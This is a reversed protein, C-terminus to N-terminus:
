GRMADPICEIVDTALLGYGYKLFALDGATGAILAGASAAALAGAKAFIAGTVGALVDGTGGVTMGPNGTRNIRVARGDSIIDINGKLLTVVHNRASFDMVLECREDLDASVIGGLMRFEGAHPTIIPLAGEHVPMPMRLAHLADADIVFRADPNSRVIGSVAEATESERGLGMGIVTVDHKRILTNVTDIDDSTLYSGSLSHVILDPSFGAITGAVSKPAAVTVWDAGARAAALAALAPAGTFAGGGIVLVRGNDGKHSGANRAPPLDGTGVILTARTPIGIDAVEIEGAVAPHGSLGEKIRHNTITLDAHVVKEFNDPNFGSPVDMSLVFASSENILDIASAVPERINGRVGTGLMADIVIDAGLELESLESSDRIERLNASLNELIAWNRRSEETAIDQARGLLLIVPNYDLLHRAAVFGDGGNNGTGALVVIRTQTGEFRARIACAVSAGANEMLQLPLLGIGGCNADVRRMESATIETNM